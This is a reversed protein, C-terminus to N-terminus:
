IRTERGLKYFSIFKPSKSSICARTAVLIELIEDGLFKARGVTAMVMRDFFAMM